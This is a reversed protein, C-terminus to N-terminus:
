RGERLYKAVREILKWDELRPTSMCKCIRMAAIRLDPRDQSLYNIRAATSRFRTLEKGSIEEKSSREDRGVKVMEAM